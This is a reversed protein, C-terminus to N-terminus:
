HHCPQHAPRQRPRRIRNQPQREPVAGHVDMDAPGRGDIVGGPELQLLPVPQRPGFRVPIPGEAVRQRVTRALVDSVEDDIGGDLISVVDVPGRRPDLGRRGPAGVHRGTGALGRAQLVQRKETEKAPERADTEGQDYRRRWRRHRPNTYEISNEGPILPQNSERQDAQNQKHWGQAERTQRRDVGPLAEGIKMWVPRVGDHVPVLDLRERRDAERAPVVRNAFLRRRGRERM